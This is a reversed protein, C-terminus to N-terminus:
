WPWDSTRPHYEDRYAQKWEKFTMARSRPNDHFKNWEYDYEVLMPRYVHTASYPDAYSINRNGADRQESIYKQHRYEAYDMLEWTGWFVGFILLILVLVISCGIRNENKTFKRRSRKPNYCVM